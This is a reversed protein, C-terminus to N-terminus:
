AGHGPKGAKADLALVAGLLTQAGKAVQETSAYEEPCHSRGDRCPIFVMASPCVRAMFAADHGGGSPLALTTLGAKRASEDLVTRLLNDMAVPQGRSLPASAVDIQRERAISAIETEVQELFRDVTESRTARVELAFVVRGPVANAANPHVHIKGVTAVLGDEDTAQAREEVAVIALAAAVLADKRRAMPTAGAHDARGELRVEVRTIGAIGTVIGVDTESTELVVGQEIHLELFGRLDGPQRLPKGLQEAAGGMARVGDALTTGDPGTAALMDPSLQGAIARSGVCSLGYRNPEEALFDFILLPHRLRRNSEILAQAVELAAIVGAIGDFRGGDPVTDIHSGLALAGLDDRTGPLTGILNGGADYTTELGIARMEAELWNRAEKYLPSFATRTWPRDPDTFRSLTDIRGAIRATNM